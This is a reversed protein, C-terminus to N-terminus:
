SFNQWRYFRITRWGQSKMARISQMIVGSDQRCHLISGGNIDLFLGVHTIREGMSLGALSFDEPVSLRLWQPYDSENVGQQRFGESSVYLYKPLEIDRQTKFGFHVVGWCDFSDPGLAHELWPKGLISDTWSNTM